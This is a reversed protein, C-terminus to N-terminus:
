PNQNLPKIHNCLVLLLSLQLIFVKDRYQQVEELSCGNVLSAGHAIDHRIKLLQDLFTEWLTKQDNNSGTKKGIGFRAIDVKYPYTKVRRLIYCRLLHKLKENIAPTNEFVLDILSNSLMSFYDKVGFNKCVKDVVTPSPNKNDDFWFPSHDLKTDLNNFTEILRITREHHSKDNEKDPRGLYLQCFTRKIPAPMNTFRDFANIDNIIAKSCDKIFGELHAVTLMIASRCLANFLGTNESEKRAREILIDIEGLRDDARTVLDYVYTDM